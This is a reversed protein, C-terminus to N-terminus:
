ITSPPYYCLQDLNDLNKYNNNQKILQALSLGSILGREKRILAGNIHSWVEGTNWIKGSNRKPYEEYEKYWKDCWELIQKETLEPLNSINRVGRYKELLKRVTGRKNLGRYGQNLACNIKSWTEGTDWVEGSSISPYKGYQNYWKDCWELIKEETLKPLNSKDRVLRYKQIIKSISNGSSLGRGGRRLSGNIGSWTEKTNPIDGSYQNPYKGYQDYWEDCWKLIKKETLKPLNSKNIKGRHKYLFYSLSKGDFSIRNNQKLAWAVTAWTESTENIKGSNKNPYKGNRKHYEDCWELIQMETLEHLNSKNVVNRERELLRALSDKGILGRSGQYLAMDIACWTETTNTIKGSKAKPYTGHKEYYKDCWKLIQIETLDEKKGGNYDAIIHKFFEQKLYMQQTLADFGNNRLWSYCPLIGNPIKRKTM